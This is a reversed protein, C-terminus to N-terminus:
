RIYRVYTQARRRRKDSVNNWYGDKCNGQGKNRCFQTQYSKKVIRKNCCACRITTGVDSRKNDAYRRLMENLGDVYEQQQQERWHDDAEHTAHQDQLAQSEDGMM